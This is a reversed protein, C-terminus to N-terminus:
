IQTDWLLEGHGRQGLLEFRLGGMSATPCCRPSRFDPTIFIAQQRSSIHMIDLNKGKSVLLM